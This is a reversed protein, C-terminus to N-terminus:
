SLRTSANQKVMPKHIIDVQESLKIDFIQTVEQMTDGIFAKGRDSLIKEPAGHRCLIDEIFHKAILDASQCPLAAIEVWKTFVLIYRNNNETIPLPGLIDMGVIEFPRSSKIPTLPNVQIKPNGKRM